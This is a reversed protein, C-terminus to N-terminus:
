QPRPVIVRDTSIFQARVFPEPAKHGKGPDKPDVLEPQFLAGANQISDTQLVANGSDYLYYAASIQKSKAAKSLVLEIQAAGTLTSQISKSWLVDTRDTSFDHLRLIVSVEGTKESVGVFLHFTNNGLYGLETARDNARVGFSQGTTKPLSALDFLGHIEFSNTDDLVSPNKESTALKRLGATSVDAQTASILVQEGLSPTMLLKGGAERTFGAPGIILYTNSGEPGSPPPANNNFDDLFIERGGKKVWFKDIVATFTEAHAAASALSLVFGLLILARVKIM